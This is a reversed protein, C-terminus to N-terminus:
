SHAAEAYYSPLGSDTVLAQTGQIVEPLPLHNEQTNTSEGPGEGHILPKGPFSGNAEALHFQGYDLSCLFVNVGLFFYKQKILAKLLQM